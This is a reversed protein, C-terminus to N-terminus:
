KRKKSFRRVILGAVIQVGSIGLPIFVMYRALQKTDPDNSFLGFFGIGMVIFLLCTFTWVLIKIVTLIAKSKAREPIILLMAEFWLDIIADVIFELIDFLLM